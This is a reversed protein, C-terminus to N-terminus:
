LADKPNCEVNKQIYWVTIRKVIDSTFCEQTM